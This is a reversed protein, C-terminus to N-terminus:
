EDKQAKKLEDQWEDPIINHDCGLLGDSWYFKLVEQLKKNEEQIGSYEMNEHTLECVKDESLKLNEKLEKNEETLLTTLAELERYRNSGKVWDDYQDTHEYVYQIAKEEFDEENEQAELEKIRKFMEEM